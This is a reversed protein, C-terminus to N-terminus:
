QAPLHHAATIKIIMPMKWFNGSIVKRMSKLSISKIGVDHWYEMKVRVLAAIQRGHVLHIYARTETKGIDTSLVSVKADNPLINVPLFYQTVGSRDLAAVRRDIHWESQSNCFVDIFWPLNA